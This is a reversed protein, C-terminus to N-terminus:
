NVLTKDLIILSSFINSVKEVTPNYITLLAECSSIDYDKATEESKLLITIVSTFESSGTINKSFVVLQKPTLSAICSLVATFVYRRAVIEELEARSSFENTVNICPVIVSSSRLTSWYYTVPVRKYYEKRSGRECFFQFGSLIMKYKHKVEESLDNAIVYQVYDEITNLGLDLEQLESENSEYKNYYDLLDDSLLVKYDTKTKCLLFFFYKHLNRYREQTNVAFFYILKGLKVCQDDSYQTLDLLATDISDRTIDSVHRDVGSGHSTVNGFNDVINFCYHNTHGLRYIQPIINTMQKPIDDEEVDITIVPRLKVDRNNDYMIKSEKFKITVVEEEYIVYVTNGITITQDVSHSTVTVPESICVSLVTKGFLQREEVETDIFSLVTNRDIIAPDCLCCLSNNVVFYFCKRRDYFRNTNCVFALEQITPEKTLQFSTLLKHEDASLDLRHAHVVDGDQIVYHDTQGNCHCWLHRGMLYCQEISGDGFYTHVGRNTSAEQYIICRGDKLLVLTDIESSYHVDNVTITSYHESWTLDLARDFIDLKGDHFVCTVNGMTFCRQINEFVYKFPIFRGLVYRYLLGNDTQIFVTQNDDVFVQKIM